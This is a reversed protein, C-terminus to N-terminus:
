WEVVVLVTLLIAVILLPALGAASAHWPRRLTWLWIAGALCVVQMIAIGWMMAKGQQIHDPKANAMGAMLLVLMGFSGVLGLASTIIAVLAHLM